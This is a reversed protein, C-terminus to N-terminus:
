LRMSRWPRNSSLKVKKIHPRHEYRMPFIGIPRQSKNSLKGKRKFKSSIQVECSVGIPRWLRNPSMKSIHLHHEYRVPLVGM